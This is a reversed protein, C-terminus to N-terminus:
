EPVPAAHTASAPSSQVNEGLSNENYSRRNALELLDEVQALTDAEGIALDKRWRLIRPFRLAIGSKHRTSRAIGEFGIEFVHHLKVSRVPGFKEKTNRRIWADLSGIEKDDLGSYAKAIPTLADGDWVAFTYDTFLNARRGTGAQAYLLVADITLPDLKWKWWHGKRRGTLYPSGKAKIMLGEVGLARAQGKLEDLAKWDRAQDNVLPSLSLRAEDVTQLLEALRERRECFSFERIDEGQQELLDYCHFQIPVENLLKKGVKKRGLRRQLDAFGMVGQDNWPLLEGDLVSGNPLSKAAAVIEPFQENVLEEGRSWLFVEDDRKILQGRIGDWKWEYAFDNFDGLEAAAKDLPSALFFPYPKSADVEQTDPNILALYSERSAQWDGTLRYLVSSQDIGVNAAVARAILLQSVGVRLAGTLMKNVLFVADRPLAQWWLKIKEGQEAESLKALPIIQEEMWQSLSQTLLTEDITIRPVLLAVTEAFDGVTRYCEDVLWEEYQTLEQLWQKLFKRPVLRKVRRGSLLYIAWAADSAEASNLYKAIAEVKANTKNTRDLSKFLEVFDRM